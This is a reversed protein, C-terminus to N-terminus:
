QNAPRMMLETFKEQEGYAIREEPDAMYHSHILPIADSSELTATFKMAADQYLHHDEPISDNAYAIAMRSICVHISEHYALFVATSLKNLTQAGFVVNTRGITLGAEDRGFEQRAFAFCGTHNSPAISSSLCNEVEFPCHTKVSRKMFRTLMDLKDEISAEEWNPGKSFIPDAKLDGLLTERGEDFHAALTDSFQVTDNLWLLQAMERPFKTEDVVYENKDTPSVTKYDYTKALHIIVRQLYNITNFRMSLPMERINTQELADLLEMHAENDFEPANSAKNFIKELDSM